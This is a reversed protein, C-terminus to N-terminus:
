LRRIFCIIWKCWLPKQGLCCFERTWRIWCGWKSESVYNAKPEEVACPVCKGFM